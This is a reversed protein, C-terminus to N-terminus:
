SRADDIRKSRMIVVKKRLQLSTPCAKRRRKQIIRDVVINGEAFTLYANPRALRSEDDREMAM